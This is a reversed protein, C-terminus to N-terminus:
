DSSRHEILTELEGIRRNAARLATMLEINQDHLVTLQERTKELENSLLVIQAMLSDVQRATAASLSTNEEIDVKRRNLIFLLVIAAASIMASIATPMDGILKDLIFEIGIMEM